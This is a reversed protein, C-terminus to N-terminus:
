KILVIQINDAPFIRSLFTSEFLNHIKPHLNILKQLLHNYLYPGTTDFLIKKSGIESFYFDFYYTRGFRSKKTFFDFTNVSFMKKHTPDVYNAKSTFHPVRIILKGESKLIRCLDKLILIYEVHELIDNCLIEDFSNDEFPLPLLQIDHVIDVGPINAIDLNIWGTRIDNGCGLNLKTSQNM